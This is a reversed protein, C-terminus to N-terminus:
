AANAALAARVEAARPIPAVAGYGQTSLAAAANAYRAAVVPVDGAALRAVFTGGFTDGAGTADVPKCPHPKILTRTIKDAVICGKDGMKLVVVKPGMALIRDILANPEEIGYLTAVDDLSPLCVDCQAIAEGIVARARDKPWLKLRLNTDFTVKAGGRRAAAIAAFGADCASDSIALSIGSLHVYRASAIYGSPVDRPAFRSAASGKRFFSFHHGDADHTVFYVATFADADERVHSADVGETRWLDRFMRGYVDAGLSTVYGTKAGQRAAAIAFNSSDGGFGQLYSRGGDAGTQNFEVMPEGIAVIDLSM